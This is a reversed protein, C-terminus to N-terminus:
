YTNLQCWASRPTVCLDFLRAGFWAFLWTWLRVYWITNTEGGVLWGVLRGVQYRARGKRALRDTGDIAATQALTSPCDDILPIIVRLETANFRHKSEAAAQIM